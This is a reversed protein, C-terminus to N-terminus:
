LWLYIKQRMLGLSFLSAIGVVAIVALSVLWNTMTPMTGMLPGRVIEIMHYVPNSNVIFMNSKLSNATWLIPTVFFMVQVINAVILSVDRYRTCIPGLLGGILMGFVSLAIVGPIAMLAVLTFQYKFLLLLGGIAVVNHAFIILNREVMKAAMVPISMPVNRVIGEHEMVVGCGENIFSSWLNWVIIGLAFHPLHEMFPINFINAYLWSMALAMVGITISIWFPGIISRRYRMAIDQTAMLHWTRWQKLFQNYEDFAVTLM